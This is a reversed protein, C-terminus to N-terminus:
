FVFTSLATTIGAGGMILLVRDGRKLKGDSQALSMALPLSASVVNGYQPFIEYFRAPDLELGRLVTQSVPVSVSHGFIVDYQHRTLVEDSWYQRHLQRIAGSALADARAVFLMSPAGHWGHGNQFQSAHPLPIQCDFIHAGSNRFSTRYGDDTSDREIVTATAAEGVTFGSWLLEMEALSGIRPPEYERFNAECNLVMARQYTGPALLHRAVDVGRLWSACADLLDFCTANSLGLESQFVNATAPEVFGRGVGTYILLDISEPACKSSELARRGAALGLDIAKEGEARHFRSHAGSRTLQTRLFACLGDLHSEPISGRNRAAVREVLEENSVSRSPLAHAIASIRM